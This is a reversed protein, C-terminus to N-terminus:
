KSKLKSIVVSINRRYDGQDYWDRFPFDIDRPDRNIQEKIYGLWQSFSFFVESSVQPRPPTVVVFDDGFNRPVKIPRLKTDYGSRLKM